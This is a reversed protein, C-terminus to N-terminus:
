LVVEQPEFASVWKKFCKAHQSGVLSTFCRGEPLASYQGFKNEPNWACQHDADWRQICTRHIVQLMERPRNEWGKRCAAQSSGLSLLAVWHVPVFQFLYFVLLVFYNNMIESTTLSLNKICCLCTHIRCACGWPAMFFPTKDNGWKAWMHKSAVNALFVVAMPLALCQIHVQSIPTVVLQDIGTKSNYVKQKVFGPDVVYYIGDITLSTEAINTAIVVQLDCNSDAGTRHWAALVVGGSLKM